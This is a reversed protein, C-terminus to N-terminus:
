VPRANMNPPLLRRLVIEPVQKSTKVTMDFDANKGTSGLYRLIIQFDADLLPIGLATIRAHRPSIVREQGVVLKERNGDVDTLMENEYSIVVIRSTGISITEGDPLTVRYTTIYPYVAGPEADSASITLTAVAAIVIAFFLIIAGVLIKTATSWGGKKETVKHAPFDPM